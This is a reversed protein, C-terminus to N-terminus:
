CVLVYMMNVCAYMNVRAHVCACVHPWMCMYVFGCMRMSAPATPAGMFVRRVFFGFYFRGLKVGRWVGRAQQHADVRLHRLPIPSATHTHLTYTTHTYHTYLICLATTCHTSQQQTSRIATSTQWSANCGCVCENVCECRFRHWDCRWGWV